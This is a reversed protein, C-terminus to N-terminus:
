SEGVGGGGIEAPQSQGRSVVVQAFGSDLTEVGSSKSCFCVMVTYVVMYQVRAVSERRARASAAPGCM